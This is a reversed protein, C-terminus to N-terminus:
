LNNKFECLFSPLYLNIDDGYLWVTETDCMIQHSLMKFLRYERSPTPILTKIKYMKMLILFTAESLASYCIFLINQILFAVSTWPMALRQIENAFVSFYRLQILDCTRSHCPLVFMEVSTHNFANVTPVRSSQVWVIYAETLRLLIYQRCDFWKGM